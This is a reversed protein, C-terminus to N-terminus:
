HLSVFRGDPGNRRMKANKKVQSGQESRYGRQGSREVPGTTKRGRRAVLKGNEHAVIHMIDSIMVLNQM